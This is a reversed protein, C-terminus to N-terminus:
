RGKGDVAVALGVMSGPGALWPEVCETVVTHPIGVSQPSRIARETAPCYHELGM